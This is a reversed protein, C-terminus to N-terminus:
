DMGQRKEKKNVFGVEFPLRQGYSNTGDCIRRSVLDLTKMKGAGGREVLVYTLNEAEGREPLSLNLFLLSAGPLVAHRPDAYHHNLRVRNIAVAILTYPLREM